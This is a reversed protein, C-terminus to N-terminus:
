ISRYSSIHNFQVPYKGSCPASSVAPYFCIMVGTIRRQTEKPLSCREKHKRRILFDMSKHLPLQAKQELHEIPDSWNITSGEAGDNRIDKPFCVHIALFLSMETTFECPNVQQVYSINQHNGTDSTEPENKSFQDCNISLLTHTFKM